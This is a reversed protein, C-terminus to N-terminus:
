ILRSQQLYQILVEYVFRYQLVTQVMNPRQERLVALNRQVDVPLNHDLCYLLIDCLITVGTRGVGAACHVLVPPNRSSSLSLESLSQRRLLDLEELFSVFGQVDEPCGHDAWDTYQLHWLARSKKKYALQLRSTIYSSGPSSCQRHVMFDGFHLTEGDRVPWYQQAPSGVTNLMVVVRVDQEWILQWFHPITHQLPAQAAIYFRTLQSAIAMVIHSANVYGLKNDKTPTLSIRNEDYPLVDRFRNKALNDAHSAVNSTAAAKERPILEYETVLSPVSIREILPLARADKVVPRPPPPPIVNTTKPAPQAVKQPPAQTHSVASNAPPKNEEEKSSVSSVVLGKNQLIAATYSPPPRRPPLNEYIPESKKVGGSSGTTIKGQGSNSSVGSGEGVHYVAQSSGQTQGVSLASQHHSTVLKQMLDPTSGYTPLDPFSTSHLKSVASEYSPPPRRSQQPPRVNNPPQGGRMDQPLNPSSYNLFSAPERFQGNRQILVEAARPSLNPVTSSQPVLNPQSSYNSNRDPQQEHMGQFGYKMSIATDYDPAQRYQPISNDGGALMGEYGINPSSLHHMPKPPHFHPDEYAALNQQTTHINPNVGPSLNHHHVAGQQLNLFNRGAPKVANAHANSPLHNLGPQSPYVMGATHGGAHPHIDPLTSCGSDHETTVTTTTGQSSSQIDPAPLTGVGGEEEVPDPIGLMVQQRKFFTHQIVCLKWVYKAHEHKEFIFSLSESTSQLEITFNRKQNVLNSIDSWRYYHLTPHPSTSHRVVIGLLSSGLHVEQESTASVKAPFFEVGYGDLRQAEVIYYVEALTPSLSQLGIYREMVQQLIQVKQNSGSTISEPLHQEMERYYELNHREADHDGFSAQLSYAALMIAQEFNCSLKGRLVDQKLQLFYQYRTNECQLLHIDTIYYMVSLYLKQERAYKELQKKVPKELELWRMSAPNHSGKGNSGGTPHRTQYRLGFFDPQQLSLRQCINDLCDKGTSDSNLTCEIDSNDLLSVAIVYLSKTSVNYQRSNKLRFLKTLPM